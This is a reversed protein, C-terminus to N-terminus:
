KLDLTMRVRNALKESLDSIAGIERFLSQWLYFVSAPIGDQSFLTKLLKHQLLDTEHELYAVDDVMSRIRKAENGGFSSALLEDMEQMIRHVAEFSELSKSLFDAFQGRFAEPASLPRFTLLMAIDEAKDAIADQIALLDLLHGRDIPLFLGKPLNNRIDNKTLDASHELQSVQEAIASIEEQDGRELVGILDGIKAVCEAVKEM